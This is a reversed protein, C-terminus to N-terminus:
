KVRVNTLAAPDTPLEAAGAPYGSERLYFAVISAYADATLSGPREQPMTTSITRFLDALTGSGWKANFTTGAQEAM